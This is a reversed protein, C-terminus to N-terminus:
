ELNLGFQNLKFHPIILYDIRPITMLNQPIEIVDRSCHGPSLNEYLYTFIYFLFLFVHKEFVYKCSKKSVNVVEKM